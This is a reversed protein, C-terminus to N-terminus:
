KAGGEVQKQPEQASLYSFNERLSVGLIGWLMVLVMAAVPIVAKAWDRCTLTKDSASEVQQSVLVALGILTSM